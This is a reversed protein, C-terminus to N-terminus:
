HKKCISNNEETLRLLETLSYNKPFNETNNNSINPKKCIPCPINEAEESKEIINGLCDICISHGCSPMMHPICKDIEFNNLCVSCTSNQM